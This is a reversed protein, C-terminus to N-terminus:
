IARGGGRDRVGAGGGSPHPVARAGRHHLASRGRRALARPQVERADRRPEAHRAQRRDRRRHRLRRPEEAHRDRARLGRAAGRGARRRRGSAGADLARLRHRARRPVRTVEARERLTVSKRRSSKRAGHRQRRAASAKWCSSSSRWTGSRRPCPPEGLTCGTAASCSRTATPREDRAGGRRRRGAAAHGPREGRDADVRSARPDDRRGAGEADRLGRDRGRRAGRARDSLLTSWVSHTHLVAAAPRAHSSKSISGRRPRRCGPRPGSRRARPM